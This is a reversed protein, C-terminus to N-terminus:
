GYGLTEEVITRLWDGIDPHDLLGVDRLRTAAIVQVKEASEAQLARRADEEIDVSDLARVIEKVVPIGSPAGSLEDIGLGLLIPVAIPNAAMEGCVSIPIGARDAARVSRDILKLVAPHMPNYLHAVRENGRDVALTYQTLDNTGISFFDCEQALVDAILAASPVEIMIGVPLKRDYEVGRGELQEKVEEIIELSERLESIGSIMPLLLRVNGQATARLVARLQTRFARRNKLTLRISRCGLQPNEEDELGINPIGKDGGLDLTRITVTRPAMSNVVREYLQEQEEESPFGRHALALLETRFLGVGEAGHREILRLDNLLGVNATLAIRRGDRTEAPRERMADLHEVAVAYQHQARHYEAQLNADPSLYIRGNSGDVVATEGERASLQIGTAGTVAPIELTRAFIAGHSTFSGHEAVLAAVKDMELRAFVEPLIQDVVVVSGDQLPQNHHRVGLLKEMVRRGVEQVDAGRERFYPDEISEFTARYTDLVHNLARFADREREVGEELKQVFGSDELIQMQTYFVAAFEPGFREGVVERMDDIERRAELLANMLDQKERAPDESPLYDLRNMDIPNDLRYVPGIAVGRATAIGRLEVNQEGRGAVAGDRGALPVGAPAGESVRRVGEDGSGVISLLQANVVVPALLQACTQLLEVDQQDFSRSELTQIVLVGTTVGQVILPAALLSEYREEGTEPFYRYDPAARAHEFAVPEGREACTGVLGEGFALQVNTVADPDLGITASLTLHRFDADSLYISCVDADMRKAVLDIVNALTEQM